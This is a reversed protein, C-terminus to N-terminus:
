VKSYEPVWEGAENRKFDQFVLPWRNVAYEALQGIVSRIEEEAVIQTRQEILWRLSRFNFTAVIGTALGIPAVRRFASTLIKKQNFDKMQDIGFIRALDQQVLELHRVTKKFLIAAEENEAICEPMRFGLNTLRVFRLSEQSFANGVSNRVLEHTFTRSVFEFAWTCTAHSFVSGHKSKLINQHYEHSDTRIKTVNPNLGPKFAKYCSRAALEVLQEPDSGSIHDLVELGGLDKLWQRVGPPGELESPYPFPDHLQM